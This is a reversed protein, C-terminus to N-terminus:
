KRADLKKRLVDAQAPDKVIRNTWLIKSAVSLNEHRNEFIARVLEVVEERISTTATKGDHVFHNAEGPIHLLPRSFGFKYGIEAARDLSIGSVAIDIAIARCHPSGTGAAILRSNGEGIGFKRENKYQRMQNVISESRYGSYQNVPQLKGGSKHVADEWRQYANSTPTLLKVGDRKTMLSSSIHGPIRSVM